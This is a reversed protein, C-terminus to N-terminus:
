HVIFGLVKDCCSFRLTSSQSFLLSPDICLTVLFELHLLFVEIELKAFVFCISRCVIYTSVRFVILFGWPWFNLSDLVKSLGWPKSLECLPHHIPKWHPLAYKLHILKMCPHAYRRLQNLKVMKSKMSVYSSYYFLVINCAIKPVIAIAIANKFRAIGVSIKLGLKWIGSEAYFGCTCSSDQLKLWLENNLFLVLSKSHTALQM